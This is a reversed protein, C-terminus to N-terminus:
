EVVDSIFAKGQNMLIRKPAEFIFIFGKYLTKADTLAKQDKTVYARTYRMFHDVIVLIHKIKPLENLDKTTESSTFNLHVLQLPTTVMMLVM